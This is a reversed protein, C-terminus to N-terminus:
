KTDKGYKGLLKRFEETKPDMESSKLPKKNVYKMDKVLKDPKPIVHKAGQSLLYRALSPIM